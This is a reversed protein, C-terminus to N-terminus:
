RVRIDQTRKEGFAITIKIAAQAVQELFAPDGLDSSDVDTLAALYYEGAALDTFRYSGDALPQVPGRMRRPGNWLARDTPFLLISLGPTPKGAADVLSGSLETSQDSYVLVVDRVSRGPEVELPSDALDRGDVSVSKLHWSPGSANDAGPLGYVSFRYTGPGVTQISFGGSTDVIGGSSGLQQIVAVANLNVQLTGVAPPKLTKAEFVVRGSVTMGPQLTLTLGLVDEGSVEVDQQAWLRLLMGGGPEPKANPDPARAAITYRGPPIGARTFRGNAALVIRMTSSNVPDQNVITLEAKAPQGDIGIIVGEIRSTQVYRLPLDIGTAEQGFAVTVM